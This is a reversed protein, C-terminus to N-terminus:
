LQFRIYVLKRLSESMVMPRKFLPRRTLFGLTSSENSAVPNTQRFTLGTAIGQASWNGILDSQLNLPNEIFSLTDGMSFELAPGEVADDDAALCVAPMVWFQLFLVVNAFWHVPLLQKPLM